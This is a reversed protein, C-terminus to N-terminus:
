TSQDLNFLESPIELIELSNDKSSTVVKDGAIALALVLRGPGKFRGLQRGTEKNLVYIFGDYCGILLYREGYPAMAVAGNGCSLTNTMSGSAFDFKFVENKQTGCFVHGDTLLLSYVNLGDPISLRRLLLGTAADHMFVFNGKCGLLIIKRVGEKTAKVAIISQGTSLLPMDMVKNAAINYTFINGWRSGIFAVGWEIDISQLPEKVYVTQMVRELNELSSKKLFGDLSTTYLFSEKECLFMNTIAESHKTIQRELKHSAINFMFVDGNESAAIIHVKYIRIQTIPSSINHLRGIPIFGYNYSAVNATTRTDAPIAPLPTPNPKLLSRPLEYSMNAFPEPPPPPPQLPPIIALPQQAISAAVSRTLRQRKPSDRASVLNPPRKSATDHAQKPEKPEEKIHLQSTMPRPLPAPHEAPQEIEEESKGAEDNSRAPEKSRKAPRRRRTLYRVRKLVCRRKRQKPKSSDSDASATPGANEQTASQMLPPPSNTPTVTSPPTVTTAQNRAIVTNLLLFKRSQLELSLMELDSKERQFKMIMEELFGRRNQNELLRRDIELLSHTVSDGMVLIPESPSFCGPSLRPVTSDLGVYPLGLPLGHLSRSAPTPTGNRPPTLPMLSQAAPEAINAGSCDRQHPGSALEASKSANLELATPSITLENPARQEKELQQKRRAAATQKQLNVVNVVERLLFDIGLRNDNAKLNQQMKAVEIKSFTQSNHESSTVVCSIFHLRSQLSACHSSRYRQALSDKLRPLILKEFSDVINNADSELKQQYRRKTSENSCSSSSSSHDSAAGNAEADAAKYVPPTGDEHEDEDESSSVVIVNYSEDSDSLNGAIEKKIASEKLMAGTETAPLEKAPTPLEKESIHLEKETEKQGGAKDKDTRTRQPKPKPIGAVDKASSSESSQSTDKESLQGSALRKGSMAKFQEAVKLRQMLDTSNEKAMHDTAITAQAETTEKNSTESQRTEQDDETSRIAASNDEAEPASIHIGFCKEIEQLLLQPLKIADVIEDEVLDKAPKDKPQELEIAKLQRRIEERLRRRAQLKLHENYITDSNNIINKLSEKDMSALRDNISYESHGNGNNHSVSSSVTRRRTQIATRQTSKARSGAPPGTSALLQEQTVALIEQKLLEALPRVQIKPYTKNAITKAVSQEPQKTARSESLNQQFKHRINRQLASSISNRLLRLESYNRTTIGAVKRPSGAVKDSRRNDKVIEKAQEPKDKFEDKNLELPSATSNNEEPQEKPEQKEESSERSKPRHEKITDSDKYNNETEDIKNDPASHIEENDERNSITINRSNQDEKTPSQLSKQNLQSEQTKTCHENTESSKNQAECRKSKLDESIWTRSASSSRFTNNVHERKKDTRNASSNRYFDTRERFSSDRRFDQRESRDYSSSNTSQNWNSNDKRYNSSQSWNTNDQTYKRYSDRPNNQPYYQNSCYNNRNNNNSNSNNKCNSKNNYIWSNANPPGNPNHHRQQQQGGTHCRKREQLAAAATASADTGSATASMAESGATTTTGTTTTAAAASDAAAAAATTAPGRREHM